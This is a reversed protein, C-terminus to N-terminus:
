VHDRPISESWTQSHVREAGEFADLEAYVHRDTATSTLVTRTTTHALRRPCGRALLVDLGVGAAPPRAM